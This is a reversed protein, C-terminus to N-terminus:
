SVQKIVAPRYRMNPAGFAHTHGVQKCEYDVLKIDPHSTYYAGSAEQARIEIFGGAHPAFVREGRRYLKVQKFIGKSLRLVGYSDEIATFLEM